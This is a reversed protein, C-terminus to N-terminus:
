RVCNLHTISLWIGWWFHVKGHAGEDETFYFLPFTGETWWTARSDGSSVAQFVLAVLLVRAAPSPSPHLSGGADVPSFQRDQSRHSQVYESCTTLVPIPVAWLWGKGGWLGSGSVAPAALGRDVVSAGALARAPALPCSSSLSMMRHAQPTAELFRLVPFLHRPHLSFKYSSVLVSAAGLGPIPLLLMPTFICKPM